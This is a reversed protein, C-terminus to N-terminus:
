DGGGRTGDRKERTHVFSHIHRARAFKCDMGSYPLNEGLGQRAVNDAHTTPTPAVVTVRQTEDTTARAAAENLQTAAANTSARFRMPAAASDSASHAHKHHHHQHPHRGRLTSADANAAAATAVLAFLAIVRLATM